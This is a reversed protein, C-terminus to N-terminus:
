MYVQLRFLFYSNSQQCMPKAMNLNSDINFALNVFPHTKKGKFSLFCQEKWASLAISLNMKFPVLM